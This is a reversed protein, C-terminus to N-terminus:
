GASGTGPRPPSPESASDGSGWVDASEAQYFRVSLPTDNGLAARDHVLNRARHALNDRRKSPKGRLAVYLTPIPSGAIADLVHGDNESMSVGHVFLPTRVQRLRAHCYTLYPSRAIRAEKDSRTGETVVFPYRGNELNHRLQTLLRGDSGRLKKLRDGDRYLHMAGHLYLVQMGHPTTPEAWTLGHTLPLFGDNRAVVSGLDDRLSAWYLLLDYNLTFIRRFNALFGRCAVLREEDVSGAHHPHVESLAEVLGRKVVDADAEMSRALQEYEAGYMRTLDAARRLREIVTEFDSSGYLDFLREKDVGLDTMKAVDLLSTYRFDPSYGQSFGNGTLLTPLGRDGARAESIAETFSLLDDTVGGM